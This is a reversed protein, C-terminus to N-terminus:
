AEPDAEGREAHADVLPYLEDNERKMRVRLRHLLEMTDRCFAEPEARIAGTDAWRDLHRFFSEYLLGVEDLLERAKGAVAADTSAILRPYLAEQEMAAHVRLRGAFVALARRSPTPDIELSRTDLTRLLEKALAVLEEHQRVFRLTSAQRGDAPTRPANM